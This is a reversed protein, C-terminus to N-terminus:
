RAQRRSLKKTTTFCQLNQHDSYIQIPIETRELWHSLTLLADVIAFMETDYIDYNVEAENFM